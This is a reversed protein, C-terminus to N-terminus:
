NKSPAPHHDEPTMVQRKTPSPQFNSASLGNIGDPRKTGNLSASDMFYGDSDIFINM